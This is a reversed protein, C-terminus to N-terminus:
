RPGGPLTGTRGRKFASGGSDRAAGPPPQTLPQTPARPAGSRRIASASWITIVVFIFATTTANLLNGGTILWAFLMSAKMEVATASSALGYVVFVLMFLFGFVGYEVLLKSWTPDSVQYGLDLAQVIPTMTGPGHGIYLSASTSQLTQSVVTMPAVYRAYASTNPNEFEHIRNLTFNLDLVSGLAFFLIAAITGLQLGRGVTKWSLPFMLGIALAFLGSGSYSLILAFGLIGLRLRRKKQFVSLECLIALAMLTSFGSPELLFFGNSKYFPGMSITTNFTDQNRIVDPIYPRFDFLWPSHIVFQLFFQAIGCCAVVFCFNAYTSMTWQWLGPTAPHARMRFTFPAYLVFFLLLSTPSSSDKHLVYTIFPVTIALLFFQIRLRDPIMLRRLLLLPILAYLAILGFSAFYSGINLQFRTLFITAFLVGGIALKLDVPLYYQAAPCVSAPRPSTQFREATSADM